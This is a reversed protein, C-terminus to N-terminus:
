DFAVLGELAEITRDGIGSVETLEQLSTFAGNATRYDIIRQALAPGIGPLTDLEELTARNVHVVGGPMDPQELSPQSAEGQAYVHITDGDHLLAAMDLRELDANAAAGGAALLADQVRSGPSLTVVGSQSVAGTVYVMMPAPTLTPAPEPTAPPPNITISVPAPRAAVLLVMGGIVALAIVLLAAILATPHPTRPPM